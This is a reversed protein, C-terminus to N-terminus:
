SYHLVSILILTASACADLASATKSKTFTLSWTLQLALKDKMSIKKLSYKGQKRNKKKVVKSNM